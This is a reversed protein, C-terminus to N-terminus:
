AVAHIMTSMRKKHLFTTWKPLPPSGLGVVVSDPVLPHSQCPITAGHRKSKVDRSPLQTMQETLSCSM